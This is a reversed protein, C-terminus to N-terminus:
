ILSIQLLDCFCTVDSVSHDTDLTSQSVTHKHYGVTHESVVQLNSEFTTVTVVIVCYIMVGQLMGPTIIM